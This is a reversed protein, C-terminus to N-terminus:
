IPSTVKLVYVYTRPKANHSTSTKSTVKRMHHVKRSYVPLLIIELVVSACWYLIIYPHYIQTIHIHQHTYIHTPTDTPIYTNNSDFMADAKDVSTTWHSRKDHIGGHVKPISASTRCARPSKVVKNGAYSGDVPYWIAPNKHSWPISSCIPPLWQLINIIDVWPFGWLSSYFVSFGQCLTFDGRVVVTCTTRVIPQM